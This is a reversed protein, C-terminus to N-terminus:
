RNGHAGGEANNIQQAPGEVERRRLNRDQWDDGSGHNHGADSGADPEVLEQVARAPFGSTKPDACFEAVASAASVHVGVM